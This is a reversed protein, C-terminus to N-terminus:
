RTFLRKIREKIYEWITQADYYHVEAGAGASLIVHLHPATKRGARMAADQAAELTKGRFVVKKYKMCSWNRGLPKQVGQRLLPRRKAM